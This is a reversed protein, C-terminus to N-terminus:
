RNRLKKNQVKLKAVDDSLRNSLILIKKIIITDKKNDM